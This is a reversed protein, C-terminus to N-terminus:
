RGREFLYIPLAMILWGALGSLVDEFSATRGSLPIQAIEVLLIVAIVVISGRMLGFLLICPVTIAGFALAHFVLDNSGRILPHDPLAADTILAFYAIAALCALLVVLIIRRVIARATM